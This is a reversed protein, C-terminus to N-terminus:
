NVASPVPQMPHASFFKWIIESADLDMSTKGFQKVPRVENGSPWTNGGGEVTYLTVESGERCGGYTDVLIPMGTKDRSAVTTHSPKLTCQDLGAWNQATTQVPLTTVATDKVSGGRYRVVPDSTGNIMLLPVARALKCQTSIARPLAAAVPAFAAIRGNMSCALRFTMLGGDSYGTAFIRNGDVSYTAELKDLMQEFFPVDGTQSKGEQGNGKEVKPFPFPIPLGMGAMGGKRGRRKPEAPAIGIDWEAGDSDPYFTIFGYRDAVFDFRTLRVMDQGTEDATHLVIVLPYKGKPDYGLPLHVVFTRLSGNVNIYYQESNQARLPVPSFFSLAWAVFIPIPIVRLPRNAARWRFVM